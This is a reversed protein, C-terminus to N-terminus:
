KTNLRLGVETLLKDNRGRVTFKIYNHNSLSVKHIVEWEEVLIRKEVTTDICSRGNVPEFTLDSNADNYIDLYRGMLFDPLMTM